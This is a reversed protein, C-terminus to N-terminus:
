QQVLCLTILTFFQEEAAVAAPVTRAVAAVV